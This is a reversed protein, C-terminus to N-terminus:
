VFLGGTDDEDGESKGKDDAAGAGDEKECRNGDARGGQQEGEDGVVSDEMEEYGEDEGMESPPLVVVPPPRPPGICESEFVIKGEQWVRLPNLMIRLCLESYDKGTRSLWIRISTPKFSKDRGMTHPISRWARNAVKFEDLRLIVGLWKRLNRCVRETLYGDHAHIINGAGNQIKCQLTIIEVNGTKLKWKQALKNHIYCDLLLMSGPASNCLKGIFDYANIGRPSGQFRRHGNAAM